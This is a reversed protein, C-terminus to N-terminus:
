LHMTFIQHFAKTSILCVFSLALSHTERIMSNLKNNGIIISLELFLAESTSVNEEKLQLESPYINSFNREFEVYDKIICFHDM